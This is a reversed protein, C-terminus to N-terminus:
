EAPPEPLVQGTRECAQKVHAALGQQIEAQVAAVSQKDRPWPLADFRMPPGVILDLRSGKPPRSEADASGHRTGLCAVPVVPAGTTLALYAAGGKTEAVDGRGRAGEPYIAIVGSRRLLRLCKKVAEPDTQYRDVKIQGVTLLGVGMAGSFMSEKVLAHVPRPCQGILLPGDLYGVHNSALIVPGQGPLNEFGSVHVDYPRVLARGVFRALWVFQSPPTTVGDARPLDWRGHADVSM